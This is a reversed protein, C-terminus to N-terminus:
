GVPKEVTPLRIENVLEEAVVAVKGEVHAFGPLEVDARFIKCGPPQHTPLHTTTYIRDAGPYAVLYVSVVM